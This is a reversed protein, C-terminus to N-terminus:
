YGAPHRVTFGAPYAAGTHWRPGSGSVDGVTDWRLGAIVAYTHEANAYVTVWNGSGSEGWGALAGSTEPTSLLKAAHLVYSVSGSCDYGASVWAGHGGGWVYSTEDIQNAAAVM